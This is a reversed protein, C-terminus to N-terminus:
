VIIRCLLSIKKHNYAHSLQYRKSKPVHCVAQSDAPRVGKPTVGSRKSLSEMLTSSLVIDFEAKPETGVTSGNNKRFVTKYFM